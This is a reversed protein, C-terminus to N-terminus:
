ADRPAPREDEALRQGLRRRSLWARLLQRGHPSLTGTALAAAVLAAFALVVPSSGGAADSGDSGIDGLTPAVRAGAVSSPDPSPTMVPVLEGLDGVRAVTAADKVRVEFRGAQSRAVRGVANIPQGVELLRAIPDAAAPLRVLARATSDDLTIDRGSLRTILGGVRVLRGLHSSLDALDVDLPGGHAATEARGDARSSGAPSGGGSSGASGSGSPGTGDPSGRTDDGTGTGSVAAGEVAPAGRIVIDRRSRPILALRQDSATPYARRVIGVVTAQQGEGVDTADVGSREGGSLPITGGAVALESRWSAGYKRTSEIRGTVRVLAWELGAPIPSRAVPRPQPTTRGLVRPADEAALQPAGYYTDVKGTVRLREGVHARIGDPLRVLIAASSDEITVRRGDADLLGLPATVVGVVTVEDGSTRAARAIPITPDTSGTRDGRRPTARPLLSPRPTKGPGSGDGPQPSPQADRVVVLDAADRPWIRYGDPRGRGSARQGAVGAAALTQGRELRGRDYGMTGHVFVKAEGADDEVSLSVSGGSGGKVSTIVGVLRVLSGEVAEGLSETSVRRVGPLQRSGLVSIRTRDGARVELNGYPDAVRGLVEVVDGRPWTEYPGDGEIRVCVGASDDQIVFTREGLLRGAEVTIVGRVRVESGVPMARAEGIPIPGSVPPTPTASPRITPRPSPTSRPTPTARPLPTPRPTPRPTQRPTPRPSATPTPDPDLRVVDEASRLYLRYGSTGSGSSDRQGLVGILEVDVGRHLDDPLIGSGAAALVRLRGTGDDLDVAFGDSLRKPGGVILGRVRILLGEVPEAAAGTQVDIPEVGGVEDSLSIDAAGALRLTTQGYRSEVTGTALVTSGVSLLPWDASRLHLAIGGTGDQIFAGTGAEFLGAPTTLVGSVNVRTGGPLSRASIIPLREPASSPDATSDTSATATASVSATPVPTVSATAPPESAIATASPSPPVADTPVPTTFVPDETPALTATAPATSSTATAVPSTEPPSPTLSPLTPRPTGSPSAVPATPDSPPDTSLVPTPEASSVETPTPPFSVAESARPGDSPGTTSPDPPPQTGEGTSAGPATPGPAPASPAALNQPVPAGEEHTDLLNDNTDYWNGDAGGPLREVSSGAPPAQAPRTEVFANTANGWGLADTPPGGLARLVLTGGTSSLGGTYIVDAVSAYRGLSNALLLRRGPDLVLAAAWTAKRTVTSGSATVYVLESGALDIPVSSANYIEVFEDSGTSGGTVVEGVVLGSAPSSESTAAADSSTTGLRADSAALAGGSALVLLSLSLVVSRAGSPRNGSM